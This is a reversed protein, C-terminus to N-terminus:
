PQDALLAAYRAAQEALGRREYHAVLYRLARQTQRQKGRTGKLGDYGDLLLAEAEELRGMASLGAGLLSQAEARQWHGEPVAGGLIELADRLLPETAAPRGRDLLLHGLGVLTPARGAHTAHRLRRQLDLSERFLSEAEEYGGKSHLVKALNALGFAVQAHEEGLQKRWTELAQRALREAAEYDGKDRLLVSLQFRGTAVQVSEDGLEKRWTALAQRHLLEAEEFDGQDRLLRALQHMSRAVNPHEDGRLRRNLALAERHLREAADDDGKRAHLSALHELALAVYPHEEGHTKRWIALAERYLPEARDYAGLSVYTHALVSMTTAVDPHEIGLLERQTALAEQLLPEAAAHHGQDRMVNALNGLVVATDPHQQGLLKRYAALAPRFLSEAEDFRHQRRLLLGLRNMTAAVDLHEEGLLAIQMALAERYLAEAEGYNGNLYLPVAVNILSEAVDPHAPGLLRRRMSLARRALSEAEDYRGRARVAPSLGNLWRAVEPHEEDGHLREEIELARRYLLEAEEYEGEAFSLTALSGLSSAVQAHEEGFARRRLALAQELLTRSSDHLGLQRYIEGVVAMMEAQVEPQGALETELRLAGQDLLERATVTEGRATNPDSVAFLSLVFDKVERAKDRERAIEAKDLVLVVASAALLIVFSAAAAVGVTHRRVFKSTRYALTDRRAAVPLGALYREIDELLAEASAYRREPEKRLAKLIVTDLDGSLQRRLRDPQTGRAHGVADPTITDTTGDEQLIAEVRGVATSPHTPEVECIVRAMADTARQELRYPRHGTLLEYLVVGLAYVDTATTVPEGRVQEPAAYEPTMARLGSLTTAGAEAEDDLLKAIGFDLLKAKGDDTVLINSPKLDRHVVLNRHAYQVAGCVRQFLRLREDVGLRRDDCYATIPTGDVYEMAFYPRAEETVGGDLLRAINDHRLRALIQRETLFRRLIAESDMGRKVLKLAVEHEFQGDVRAALYVEGMGGRGLGRVLQYPGIRGDTEPFPGAADLLARARRADLAEFSDSRELADLLSVVEALVDPADPCAQDLFAERDEQPLDVAEAFLSEVRRAHNPDPDRVSDDM